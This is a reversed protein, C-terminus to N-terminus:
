VDELIEIGDIYWYMGARMAQTVLDDVIGANLAENTIGSCANVCTIIREAIEKKTNIIIGAFEGINNYTIIDVRSIGLEDVHNHDNITWLKKM